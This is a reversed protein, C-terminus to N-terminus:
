RKSHDVRFVQIEGERAVLSAGNFRKMVEGHDRRVDGVERVDGTGNELVSQFIKNTRSMRLERKAGGVNVVSYNMGKENKPKMPTYYEKFSERNKNTTSSRNTNYTNSRYIPTINGSKSFKTKTQNQTQTSFKTKTYNQTQTSFKTKTQTQTINRRTSNQLSKKTKFNLTPPKSNTTELPFARNIMNVKNVSKEFKSSEINKTVITTPYYNDMPAQFCKSIEEKEKYHMKLLPEGQLRSPAEFCKILRPNETKEVLKSEYIKPTGFCQTIQPEEDKQITSTKFIIPKMNRPAQFCKSIQPEEKEVKTLKLPEKITTTTFTIPQYNRPAQFCKSIQPEEKYQIELKTKPEKTSCGGNIDMSHILFPKKYQVETLKKKPEITSCGGNIDM